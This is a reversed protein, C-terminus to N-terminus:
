ALSGEHGCMSTDPSLEIAEDIPVDTGVSDNTEVMTHTNECHHSAPSDSSMSQQTHVAQSFDQM